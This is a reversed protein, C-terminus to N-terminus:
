ATSGSSGREEMHELMDIIASHPCFLLQEADQIPLNRRDMPHDNCFLVSLNRLARDMLETARPFEALM